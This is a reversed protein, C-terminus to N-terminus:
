DYSQDKQWSLTMYKNRIRRLNPKNYRCHRCNCALSKNKNFFSLYGACVKCPCKPPNEDMDEYLFPYLKLLNFSIDLMKYLRQTQRVQEIYRALDLHPLSEKRSAMYTRIRRNRVRIDRASHYRTM